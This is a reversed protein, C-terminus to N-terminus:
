AFLKQIEKLGTKEINAMKVFRRQAEKGWIQGAFFNHFTIVENGEDNRRLEDVSHFFKELIKNTIELLQKNADFNRFYVDVKEHISEKVSNVFREPPIDWDHEVL